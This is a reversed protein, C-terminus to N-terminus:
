DYVLYGFYRFWNDGPFEQSTDDLPYNFAWATESDCPQCIIPTEIAVVQKNAHCPDTDPLITHYVITLVKEGCTPVFGEGQTMAEQVLSDRLEPDHPWEGYNLGSGQWDTLDGSPNIIEWIAAQITRKDWTPDLNNILWNVRDLYESHELFTTCTPIDPDYSCLFHVSRIDDNGIYRTNDLCWGYYPGGQSQFYATIIYGPGPSDSFHPTMADPEFDPCITAPPDGPCDGQQVVAHAGIYVMGGTLDSPIPIRYPGASNGDLGTEGYPFLGVQPNGSSNVIFDEVDAVVMLHTETITWDGVDTYYYITLSDDELQVTIYGVSDTQGAILPVEVYGGAIDNVAIPDPGWTFGHKNVKDNPSTVNEPSQCSIFILSFFALLSFLIILKKM